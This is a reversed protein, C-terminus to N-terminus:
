AYQAGTSAAYCSSIVNSTVLFFEAMREAAVLASADGWALCCPHSGNSTQRVRMKSGRSASVPLGSVGLAGM